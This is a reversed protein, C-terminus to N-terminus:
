LGVLYGAVIRLIYVFEVHYFGQFLVAREYDVDVPLVLFFHLFKTGVSYLPLQRLPVRVELDHIGGFDCRISAQSSSADVHNHLSGEILERFDNKRFFFSNIQKFFINSLCICV